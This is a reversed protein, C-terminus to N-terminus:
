GWGGERGGRGGRESRGGWGGGLDELEQVLAGVDVEAAELAHHGSDGVHKLTDALGFADVKVRERLAELVTLAADWM